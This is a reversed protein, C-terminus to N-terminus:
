PHSHREDDRDGFFLLWFGDECSAILMSLIHHEEFGLKGHFLSPFTHLSSLLAWLVCLYHKTGFHHHRRKFVHYAQSAELRLPYM